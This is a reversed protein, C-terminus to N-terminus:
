EIMRFQSLAAVRGPSLGCGPPENSEDSSHSAACSLDSALCKARPGRIAVCSGRRHEYCLSRWAHSLGRAHSAEPLLARGEFFMDWTKQARRARSCVSLLGRHLTLLLSLCVRILYLFFCTCVFGVWSGSPTHGWPPTVWWGDMWIEM